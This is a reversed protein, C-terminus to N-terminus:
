LDTGAAARYDECMVHIAGPQEGCRIYKSVADPHHVLPRGWRQGLMWPMFFDSDHGILREPFDAPRNRGDRLQHQGMAIRAAAGSVV